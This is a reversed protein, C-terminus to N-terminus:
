HAIKSYKDKIGSKNNNVHREAYLLKTQRLM